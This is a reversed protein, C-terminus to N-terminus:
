CIDGLPVMVVIPYVQSMITFKPKGRIEDNKPKVKNGMVAKVKVTYSKILM